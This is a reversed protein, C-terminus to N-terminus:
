LAFRGWITHATADDEVVILRAKCEPRTIAGKKELGVLHQHATMPSYGLHEGIDRISPTWGERQCAVIYDLVARQRATLQDGRKTRARM